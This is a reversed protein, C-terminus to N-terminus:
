DVTSSSISSHSWLGMACRELKRLISASYLSSPRWRAEANVLRRWFGGIGHLSDGEEGNAKSKTGNSQRRPRSPSGACGLYIPARLRSQGTEIRAIRRRPGDTFLRLGDENKRLDYFSAEHYARLEAPLNESRNQHLREKDCRAGRDAWDSFIM